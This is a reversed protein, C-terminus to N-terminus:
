GEGLWAVEEVDGEQLAQELGGKHQVIHPAGAGQLQGCAPRHAHGQRHPGLSDRSGPRWPRGCRSSHTDLQVSHTDSPISALLASSQSCPKRRQARPSVAAPQLRAGWSSTSPQQPAM